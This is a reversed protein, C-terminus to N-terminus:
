FFLRLWQEWNPLQSQLNSEAEISDVAEPVVVVVEGQRSLNLKDRAEKEIFQPSQVYTLKETLEASEGQKETLVAQRQSIIGGKEWLSRISNVLSMIFILCLLSIGFMLLRNRM